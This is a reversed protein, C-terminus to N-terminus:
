ERSLYITGGIKVTPISFETFGDRAESTIKRRDPQEPLRYEVNAFRGRARVQVTQGKQAYNVLQLTMWSDDERYCAVLTTLANWLQVARKQKGLLRGGELALSNPDFAAEDIEVWAGSGIRRTTFDRGSLRESLVGAVNGARVFDSLACQEAPTPRDLLFLLDLSELPLKTVSDRSLLRVPLNYRGLMKLLDHCSAVDAPTIGINSFPQSAQRRQESYFRLYAQVRNWTDIAQPSGNILGEELDPDLPLLLDAGFAGAEAIALQYDAVAPPRSDGLEEWDYTIRWRGDDGWYKLMLISAQNSEIWPQETASAIQLVGDKNQVSNSLIRPPGDTKLCFSLPLNASLQLLKQRAQFDNSLVIIGAVEKGEAWAAAPELRDGEVALYVKYGKKCAENFISDGTQDFPIAIKEAGLTSRDPIAPRDWKLLVEASLSTCFFSLFSLLSLLSLLSSLTGHNWIARTKPFARLIKKGQESGTLLLTTSLADATTASPALVSVAEQSQCPRGSTPDIIHRTKGQASTSLSAGKLHFVESQHNPLGLAVPWGKKRPPAGIATISSRGANILACDIGQSRCLRVARDVAYGKGIAGLDIQVCPSDVCIRNPPSLRIKRFGVCNGAAQLEQESPEIGEDRCRRWLSVLPGVSVDFKGGSIESYRLSQAIIEFLDKSLVAPNGLRGTNLRSIESNGRFGSMLNELRTVEEFVKSVTEEIRDRSDSYVFVDFVTGMLFQQFHFPGSSRDAAAILLSGGALQLFARRKTRMSISAGVGGVRTYQIM